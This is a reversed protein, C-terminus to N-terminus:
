IDVRGLVQAEIREAGWSVAHLQMYHYIGERILDEGIMHAIYTTAHLRFASSPFLALPM